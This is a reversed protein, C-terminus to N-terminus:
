ISHLKLNITKFDKSNIRMVKAGKIFAGWNKKRQAIIYTKSDDKEPKIGIVQGRFIEDFPQPIIVKDFANLEM